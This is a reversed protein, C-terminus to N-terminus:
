EALELMTVVAQCEQCHPADEASNLTMTNRKGCLAREISIKGERHIFSGRSYSTIHGIGDDYLYWTIREYTNWNPEDTM